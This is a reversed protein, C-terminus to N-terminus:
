IDTAHDKEHQFGYKYFDEKSVLKGKHHYQVHDTAYPDNGASENSRSQQYLVIEWKGEKNKKWNVTIEGENVSMGIEAETLGAFKRDVYYTAATQSKVGRLEQWYAEGNYSFAAPIMVYYKRTNPTM